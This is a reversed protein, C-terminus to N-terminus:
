KEQVCKFIPCLFYISVHDWGLRKFNTTFIFSMKDYELLRDFVSSVKYTEKTFYFPFSLSVCNAKSCCQNSSWPDVFVSQQDIFINFFIKSIQLM